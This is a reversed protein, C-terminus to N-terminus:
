WLFSLSERLVTPLTPLDLTHVTGGVGGHESAWPVGERQFKTAAPRRKRFGAPHGALAAAEGRWASFWLQTHNLLACSLSWELHSAVSM